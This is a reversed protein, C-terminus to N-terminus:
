GLMDDDEDFDDEDEEDDIDDDYDSVGNNEILEEVFEAMDDSSLDEVGLLSMLSDLASQSYVVFDEADAESLKKVEKEWTHMCNAWTVGVMFAFYTHGKKNFKKAVKELEEISYDQLYENCYDEFPPLYALDGIAMSLYELLLDKYCKGPSFKM